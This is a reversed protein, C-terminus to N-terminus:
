KELEALADEMLMVVRRKDQVMLSSDDVYHKLVERRAAIATRVAMVVLPLAEEKIKVTKEVESRRKIITSGARITDVNHVNMFDAIAGEIGPLNKTM